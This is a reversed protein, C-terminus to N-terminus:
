MGVSLLRGSMGAEVIRALAALAALAAGGLVLMVLLRHRRPQRRPADMGQLLRDIEAEQMAERRRYAAAQEDLMSFM